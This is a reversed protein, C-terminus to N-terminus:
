FSPEVAQFGARRLAEFVHDGPDGPGRNTTVNRHGFVGPWQKALGGESVPQLSKVPGRLPAGHADALFRRPIGLRDCLVGLFRACVELQFDYLAGDDDQVLEIGVTWGNVHGAHWALWRVPDASQVVTGDTDLTFHWSVERPTRAQYKAYAEAKASAKKGPRLPGLKGHVTHLTIATPPVARRKGDRVIPVDTPHQAYNLIEFGDLEVLSGDYVISSTPPPPPRLSVPTTSM